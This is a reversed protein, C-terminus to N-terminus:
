QWDSYGRDLQIGFCRERHLFGPLQQANRHRAHAQPNGSPFNRNDSQSSENTYRFRFDISQKGLAQHRRPSSSVTWCSDQDGSLRQFSLNGKITRETKRMNALISVRILFPYTPHSSAANLM